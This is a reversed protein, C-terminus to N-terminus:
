DHKVQIVEHVKKKIDRIADVRAETFKGKKDIYLHASEDVRYGVKSAEDVMRCFTLDCFDDEWDGILYLRDGLLRHQTRTDREGEAPEKGIMVDDVFMGFLIPDRRVYSTAYKQVEGGAGKDADKVQQSISYDTYLVLFEDFVDELSQKLISIEEPIEREYSAVDIIKLVRSPHKRMLDQLMDTSISKTIGISELHREVKAVKILWSLKSARLWQKNRVARSHSKAANELFKDFDSSTKDEVAAKAERFVREANETKIKEHLGVIAKLKDLIKSM